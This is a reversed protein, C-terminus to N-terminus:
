AEGAVWERDLARKAPSDLVYRRLADMERGNRVIREYYNRQWVAAGATARLVNIRRAAASKFARVIAPLSELVMRGFRRASDNPTPACRATGEDHFACDSSIWLIRRLHNPMVVFEDLRVNPGLRGTALWEEHVAFGFPNLEVAAGPIRGFLTRREHTVITIFYTGENRTM